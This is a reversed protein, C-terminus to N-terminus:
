RIIEYYHFSLSFHGNTMEFMFVQNFILEKFFIILWKLNKKKSFKLNRTEKITIEGTQIWEFIGFAHHFYWLEKEM